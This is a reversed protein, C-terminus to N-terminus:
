RSFTSPQKFKSKKPSTKVKKKMANLQQQWGKNKRSMEKLRQVKQRDINQSVQQYIKNFDKNKDESRYGVIYEESVMRDNSVLTTSKGQTELAEIHPTRGWSAQRASLADRDKMTRGFKDTANISAGFVKTEDDYSGPGLMWTYPDPAPRQFRNATGDRPKATPKLPPTSTDTLTPTGTSSSSSSGTAFVGGQAQSLEVVGKYEKAIQARGKILEQTVALYEHHYDKTAGPLDSALLQETEYAGPGPAQHFQKVPSLSSATPRQVQTGFKKTTTGQLLPYHPQPSTMSLSPSLNYEGPSPYFSTAHTVKGSGTTLRFAQPLVSM